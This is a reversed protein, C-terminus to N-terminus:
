IEFVELTTLFLIFTILFMSIFELLWVPGTLKIYKIILNQVTPLLLLNGLVIILISIYTGKKKLREWLRM